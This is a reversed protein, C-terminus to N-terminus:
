RPRGPKQFSSRGDRVGGRRKPKPSSKAWKQLETTAANPYLDIADKLLGYLRKRVHDPMFATRDIIDKAQSFQRREIAIRTQLDQLRAEDGESFGGALRLLEGLKTADREAGPIDARALYIDARMFYPALLGSTREVARNISELAGPLDGNRLRSQADRVLFFSLGPADGYFKLDNIVRDLEHRDVYLGAQLKGLLTEAMIDLIYPNIPQDRYAERAYQEAEVYRKQKCYLSALERNVSQNKRNLQWAKKFEPEASDLDGRSRHRFGELFHAIRRASTATYRRLQVSVESYASGDGLRIASLGWLRLAEVQADETLRDRMEFARRCFKMCLPRRGADYHQRAIWLLHSPLILSSLYDPGSAGFAAAITATRLMAVPVHDSDTYEKLSDIISKGLDQKWKGSREFRKDRRIAERIPASINYYEQHREVCCMEELLRLRETLESAPYPLMGIMSELSIHVYESLSAIIETDILEFPIRELFDEARKRKWELMVSPDHIISNIGYTAIFRTAFRVNFPHGDLYQSISKIQQITYDVDISKLSLALLQEIDDDNLPRLFRHFTRPNDLQLKAPMMRTQIVGFFPRSFDKLIFLVDRFYDQYDGEEKYLGGEDMLFLFEGADAMQRIIGAITRSKDAASLGSFIGFDRLTQELSSVQHLGYLQRYFEDPGDYRDISVLAISQIARPIIKELTKKIFTRRGIGHFGVAHVALPAEDAPLSIARRLAKEDEDRGLYVDEGASSEASLSLLAAQIRRACAKPSTITQAVNIEQMWAPLKRYTTGDIAFILIRKILGRGRSELATRQEEDVFSSSISNESLFYVFLDCRRLAQRIEQVNFSYQFTREDYESIGDGLAESVKSVYWKDKSSHSLFARV